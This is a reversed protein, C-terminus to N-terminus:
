GNPVPQAIRPVLTARLGAAVACGAAAAAVVAGLAAAAGGAEVLVGAIGSGLAVGGFVASTLWTFAEALAGAPALRELLLYMTAIIPALFFGSAVLIALMPALGTVLPLPAYALLAGLALQVHRRVLRDDGAQPRSGLWLGGAVSGCSWVALLLGARGLSGAEETFAPIGIELAGVGVGVAIAQLLITRVGAVGLVAGGARDVVTAGDRLRSLGASAFLLAGIMGLAAALAMAAAASAAAAVTAVILSGLLFGAEACSADFAYALQLLERDPLARAWLALLAASFPPFALGAVGAAAALAALPAGALACALLAVLGGTYLAGCALLVSREGRRDVLRGRVPAGVASTAAFAAACAGAAGYMGAHERVLLIMALPTMGLSLRGLFAGAIPARTGPVALLARLRPARRHGNSPFSGSPPYHRREDNASGTGM